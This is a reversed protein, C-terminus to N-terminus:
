RGRRRRDRPPRRGRRTRPRGPCRARRGPPARGRGAAPGPRQPAPRPRVRSPPRRPPRAPRPSRRSFVLSIARGVRSPLSPLRATSAKVAQRRQVPHRGSALGHRHGRALDPLGPRLLRRTTM